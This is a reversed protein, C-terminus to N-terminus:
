EEEKKRNVIVFREGDRHVRLVPRGGLLHPRVWGNTEIVVDNALRNGDEDEVWAIPGARLIEDVTRPGRIERIGELCIYRGEDGAIRLV